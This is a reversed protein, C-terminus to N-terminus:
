GDTPHAPPDYRSLRKGLARIGSLSNPTRWTGELTALDLMAKSVDVAVFHPATEMAIEGGGQMRARHGQCGNSVIRDSRIAKSLVRARLGLVPV